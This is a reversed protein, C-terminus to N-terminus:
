RGVCFYQFGMSRMKDPSYLNRGDFVVPTKMLRKMRSFDPSRFLNWETAIVLGDAEELCQYPEGCCVVGQQFLPGIRNLAAPDFVRLRVGWALLKEMLYVAPSERIDDTEPKFSLGWVAITKGKLHSVFGYFHVMKELFKERQGRNVQDVAKLLPLCCGAEEGRRILGQVDKPLCSGGYGLGPYLYHVGIRPDHGLVNRIERIDAGLKECLSAMENMFSVRNALMANAAYKSLEASALDMVLFCDQKRMLPAYLDRLKDAHEKKEVGVVIRDPIRFDQLATGEKLFEPNSAVLIGETKLGRQTMKEHLINKIKLNTGVPVTSKTAVLIPGNLFDGLEEACALVRSVDAEGASNLPTDVTIFCIESGAIAESLRAVFFLRGDKVGRAAVTELGPEFIPLLGKQLTELKAADKEVCWVEHGLDALSAGAVLGVYGTGIVTIKM